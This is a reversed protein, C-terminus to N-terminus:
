RGHPPHGEPAPRADGLFDGVAAAVEAPQDKHAAHRAGDVVVVRCRSHAAEVLRADRVRRPDDNSGVILLLPCAIAGIADLDAKPRHASRECLELMLALWHDEGHHAVHLTRLSRPWGTELEARTPVRASPNALGPSVLTLSACTGPHTLELELAAEAGFSFAVLHPSGMDERDILALLDQVVFEIGIEGARYDSRGHGRLDPTICRYRDSLALALEAWEDDGAGSAGHVFLVADGSGVVDYHLRLGDRQYTTV